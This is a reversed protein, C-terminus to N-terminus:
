FCGLSKKSSSPFSPSMIETNRFGRGRGQDHVQKREERGICM